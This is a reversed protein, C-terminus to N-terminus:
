PEVQEADHTGLLDYLSTQGELEADDPNPTRNQVGRVGRVAPSLGLESWRTMDANVIVHPHQHPAPELIIAANGDDDDTEYVQCMGDGGTNVLVALGRKVYHLAADEGEPGLYSPDIIVLRGSDVAAEPRRRAERHERPIIAEVPLTADNEDLVAHYDILDLLHVLEKARRIPLSPLPTVSVSPTIRVVRFTDPAVSGDPEEVPAITATYGLEELLTLLHTTQVEDLYPFSPTGGDHAHLTEM